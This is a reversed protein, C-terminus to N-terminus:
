MALLFTSYVNVTMTLGHGEAKGEDTAVAANEIVADVRDLQEHVRKAFAKM